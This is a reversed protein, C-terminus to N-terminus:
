RRPPPVTVEGRARVEDRFRVEVAHTGPPVGRVRLRLDHPCTCRAVPAEPERATLVLAGDERLAADFVPAPGCYFSFSALRITVDGSTAARATLSTAAMASGRQASGCRGGLAVVELPAPQALALSASALVAFLAFTFSRTM